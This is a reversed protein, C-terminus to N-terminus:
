RLDENKEEDFIWTDETLETFKEKGYGLAKLYKMVRDKLIEASKTFDGSFEGIVTQESDIYEKLLKLAIERYREKNPVNIDKASMARNWAEIAEAETPYIRGTGVGCSICHVSFMHMTPKHVEAEGGCGCRVPKLEDTM